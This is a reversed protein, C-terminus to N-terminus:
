IEFMDAYFQLLLQACLTGVIYVSQYYKLVFSPKLEFHPSFFVFILGLIIDLGYACKWVM